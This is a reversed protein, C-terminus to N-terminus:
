PAIATAAVEARYQDRSHLVMGTLPMELRCLARNAGLLREAIGALRLDQQVLRDIPGPAQASVQQAFAMAALALAFRFSSNMPRAIVQAAVNLFGCVKRALSARRGPTLLSPM